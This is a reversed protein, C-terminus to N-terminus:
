GELTFKLLNKLIEKVNPNNYRTNKHKTCLECWALNVMIKWEINITKYGFASNTQYTQFTQSSVMNGKRSRM